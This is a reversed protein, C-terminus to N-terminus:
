APDRFGKRMVDDGQFVDLNEQTYEVIERNNKKVQENLWGDKEVRDSFFRSVFAYRNKRDKRERISFRYDYDDGDPNKSFDQESILKWQKKPFNRVFFSDGLVDAFVETLYVKNALNGFLDYTNEGGIVFIDRKQRCISIIDAILLADERTNTWTLQTGEDFNIVGSNTLAPNRSLVINTRNPLPRGISEFTARGMIVVHGTTIEKFRKLDSKLRWPLRNEYGIVNGPFSRAVIFSISPM